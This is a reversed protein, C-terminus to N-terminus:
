TRWHQVFKAYNEPIDEFISERAKYWTENFPAMNFVIRAIHDQPLPAGNPLIGSSASARESSVSGTGWGNLDHGESGAEGMLGAMRAVDYDPGPLKISVGKPYVIRAPTSFPSARALLRARLRQYTVDAHPLITDAESNKSGSEDNKPADNHRMHHRPLGDPGYVYFRPALAAHHHDLVEDPALQLEYADYNTTFPARSTTGDGFRTPPSSRSNASPTWPTRALALSGGTPGNHTLDDIHIIESTDRTPIISEPVTYARSDPGVLFAPDLTRARLPDSLPAAFTTLTPRDIIYFAPPKHDIDFPEISTINGFVFHEDDIRYLDARITDTPQILISAAKPICIKLPDRPLAEGDVVDDYEEPNGTRGVILCDARVDHVLVQVYWRRPGLRVTNTKPDVFASRFLTYLTMYARVTRLLHQAYLVDELASEREDEALYGNQYMYDLLFCMHKVTTAAHTVFVGKQIARAYECEVIYKVFWRLPVSPARLHM